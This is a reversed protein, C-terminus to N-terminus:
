EEVKIACVDYVGNAGVGVQAIGPGVATVIGYQDVWVVSEDSSRWDLRTNVAYDPLVAATLELQEGIKMIAKNQSLKVAQVAVPNVTVACAAEAGNSLQAIIRTTGVGAALVEGKETVVAISPDESVFKGTVGVTGEPMIKARLRAESGIELTISYTELLVGASMVRIDRRASIGNLATATITATGEGVALVRNGSVKLVNPDSTKWSLWKQPNALSRPELTGTMTVIQGPYMAPVENLTVTTMPYGCRVELSEGDSVVAVNGDNNSGTIFYASGQSNLQSRYAGGPLSANETCFVTIVPSIMSIVERAHSGNHHPNKLVDVDLGGPYRREARRLMDDSTDGTFLFSRSGYDLRLILSNDNELIDGVAVDNITAPGLCRVLAGGIPFSDGATLVVCNAARIAHEQQGRAHNVIASLTRTRNVYITEPKFRDIIQAAGAIHDAHSHSGIYSNLHDVGLAELYKIAPPADEEFGVDIFSTEGDCRILIGDVRGLDLFYVELGKEAKASGEAWAPILGALLCVAIMLALWRRTLRMNGGWLLWEPM